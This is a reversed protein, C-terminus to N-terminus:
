QGLLFDKALRVGKMQGNKPPNVRLTGMGIGVEDVPVLYVEDRDPSYVGFMEVQGRYDNTGLGKHAQSSCTHFILAGKRLRATKCQVRVFRGGEDIVLDYRQNDGFPLLIVKGAKLLAALIMGESREGVEKPNPM